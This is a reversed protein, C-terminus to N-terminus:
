EFQKLLQRIGEQLDIMEKQLSDIKCQDDSDILNDKPSVSVERVERRPHNGASFISNHNYQYIKIKDVVMEISTLDLNVVHLGAERDICGHCIRKIAQKFM